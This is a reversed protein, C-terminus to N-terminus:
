RRERLETISLGTLCMKMFEEPTAQIGEAQYRKVVDPPPPAAYPGPECFHLLGFIFKDKVFRGCDKCVYRM